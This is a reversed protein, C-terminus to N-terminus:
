NLSALRGPGKKLPSKERREHILRLLKERAERIQERTLSGCKLSKKMHRERSVM